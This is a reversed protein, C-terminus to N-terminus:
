EEEEAGRLWWEYGVFNARRGDRREDRMARRRIARLRRDERDWDPAYRTNENPLHARLTRIHKASEIDDLLAMVLSAVVDGMALELEHPERTTHICIPPTRDNGLRAYQHVEFGDGGRGGPAIRYLNKSKADVYIGDEEFRVKGGSEAAIQRVLQFSLRWAERPCTMFEREVHVAWLLTAALFRNAALQGLEGAAVRTLLERLAPTTPMVASTTERIQTQWPGKQYAYAMEEVPRHDLGHLRDFLLQPLITLDHCHMDHAGPGFLVGNVWTGWGDEQILDDGIQSQKTLQNRIATVSEGTGKTSERLEIADKVPGLDAHPGLIWELFEVWGEERSPKACHSAASWNGDPRRTSANDIIVNRIEQLVDPSRQSVALVGYPIHETRRLSYEVWPGCLTCLFLNAEHYWSCEPYECSECVDQEVNEDENDNDNDDNNKTM